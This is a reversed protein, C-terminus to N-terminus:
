ENPDKQRTAKAGSIIALGTLLAAGVVIWQTALNFLVAAYISGGLFILFGIMYISFSM